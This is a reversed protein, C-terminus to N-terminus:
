PGDLNRTAITIPSGTKASAGVTLYIATQGDVEADAPGAHFEFGNSECLGQFWGHRVRVCHLPGSWQMQGDGPNVVLDPASDNWDIFATLFVQGTDTVVRRLERVLAETDNKDLHSFVSFLNIVDVSRDPVPLSNKSVVKPADPNYRANRTNVWEFSFEPHQSSIWKRCWQISPKHVDVGCYRVNPLTQMLGIALRGAGCGIDLVSSGSRLNCHEILRRAERKASDLFFQDSRFEMGCFRLYRPPLVVGEQRTHSGLILPFLYSKALTAIRRQLNGFGGCGLVDATTEYAATKMLGGSNPVGRSAEQHRLM